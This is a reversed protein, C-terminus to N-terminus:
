PKSFDIDGIPIYNTDKFIEDVKEDSLGLDTMYDNKLSSNKLFMKTAIQGQTLSTDKSLCKFENYNENEYPIDSLFSENLAKERFLTEMYFAQAEGKIEPMGGQIKPICGKKAQIDHTLEHLLTMVNNKKDDSVTQFNVGFSLVEGKSNVSYPAEALARMSPSYEGTIILRDDDLIDMYEKKVAESIKGINEEFYHGAEIVKYLKKKEDDSIKNNRHWTSGFEDVKDIADFFEKATVENNEKRHIRGGSSFYDWELNDIKGNGNLDFIEFGLKANGNKDIVEAKEIKGDFVSDKVIQNVINEGTEATTLNINDLRNIINISNGM